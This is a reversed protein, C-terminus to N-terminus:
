KRNAIITDGERLFKCMAPDAFILIEDKLQIECGTKNVIDVVGIEIYNKPICSFLLIFIM